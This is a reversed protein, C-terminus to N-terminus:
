RLDACPELGKDEQIYHGTLSDVRGTPPEGGLATHSRHHNHARLWGPLAQTREASSNLRRRPALEEILTRAPGRGHIRWGGGPRIAGLKKVDLHVVLEGPRVREYRRIVEGSPDTPGRCVVWRVATLVRHVTSPNL